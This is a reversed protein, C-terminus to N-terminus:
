SFPGVFALPLVVLVFSLHDVSFFVLVYSTRERARFRHRFELRGRSNRVLYLDDLFVAPAGDESEVPRRVFL